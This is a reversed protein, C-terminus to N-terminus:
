RRMSGGSPGDIAGDKFLDLIMKKDEEIIKEIDHNRRVYGGANGSMKQWLGGDRLLETLGRKLRHIDGGACIGVGYKGLMGDPDATLSLVPTGHKLAQIFTNPFGEEKSTNVFIKAKAFYDEIEHFPVYDVFRLNPVEAAKSKVSQFYQEDNSVPCVMVLRREPFSEALALFIEPQKWVECRAVWLISEKDSSDPNEPMRHASPRIHGVKGYLRQLNEEQVHHQIIVVEAAKLGERFMRWMINGVTGRPMWSPKLAMVDADHATMYIFKKGQSRCFLAILGTILGAARQVYVDADIKKLLRWLRIYEHITKVYKIGTSPRVLKYLEVGEREEHDPQGFDGTVFFVEFRPDKMLETALYYLQLEAGGFEARVKPNFLPYAFLSVLCVRVPKM